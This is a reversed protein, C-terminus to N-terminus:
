ARKKWEGLHEWQTHAAQRAFAKAESAEAAAKIAAAEQLSLQGRLEVEVREREERAAALSQQHQEQAERKAAASDRSAEVRAAETRHRALPEVMGTVRAEVACVRQEWRMVAADTSAVDAAGAVIADLALSRWRRADADVGPWAGGGGRELRSELLWEM